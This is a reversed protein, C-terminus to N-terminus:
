WARIKEQASKEKFEFLHPNFDYAIIRNKGFRNKEITLSIEMSDGAPAATSTHSSLHFVADAKRVHSFVPKEDLSSIGIVAMSFERALRGLSGLLDDIKATMAPYAGGPMGELSDIVLLAPKKEDCLTRLATMDLEEEGEAFSLFDGWEALEKKVLHEIKESQKEKLHGLALLTCPIGSLRSYLMLNLSFIPQDYSVFLCPIRERSAIAGAIQLAYSTKGSGPYGTLSYLMHSQIGGTSENFLSFGTDFGPFEKKRKKYLEKRRNLEEIFLDSYDKATIIGKKEHSSHRMTAIGELSDHAVTIIRDFYQDPADSGLGHSFFNKLIMIIEENTLKGSRALCTALAIDYHEKTPNKLDVRKGSLTDVLLSDKKMLSELKNQIYTYVKLKRLKSYEAGAKKLDDTHTSHEDRTM